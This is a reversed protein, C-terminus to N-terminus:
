ADLSWMCRKRKSGVEEDEMAGIYRMVTDDGEHKHKQMPGNAVPIM